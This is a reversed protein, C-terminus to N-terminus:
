GLATCGGMYIYPNITGAQGDGPLGIAINSSTPAQGYKTVRGPHVEVHLHAGFTNNGSSDIGSQTGIVEGAAIQSGIAKNILSAMHLFIFTVDYPQCYLAIMGCNSPNRALLEGTFPAHVATAGDSYMDVGVHFRGNFYSNINTQLAGYLNYLCNKDLSTPDNSKYSADEHFVKGFFRRVNTRINQEDFRGGNQMGADKHFWECYNPEKYASVNYNGIKPMDIVRHLEEVEFYSANSKGAVWSCQSTSGKLYMVSGNIPYRLRIYCTVNSRQEFDIEQNAYDSTDKQWIDALGGNVNRDLCFTDHSHEIFLRNGDYYWSQERTGDQPMCNVKTGNKLSSTGYYNLANTGAELCFRYSYGARPMAM